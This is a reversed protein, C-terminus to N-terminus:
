LGLGGGPIGHSEFDHNLSSYQHLPDSKDSMFIFERRTVNSFPIILSTHKSTKFIDCKRISLFPHDSLMEGTLRVCGEAGHGKGGTDGPIQRYYTINGDRTVIDM